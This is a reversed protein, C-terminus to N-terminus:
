FFFLLSSFFVQRDSSFMLCSITIACNFILVQNLTGSRAIRILKLHMFVIYSVSTIFIVNNELAGLTVINLFFFLYLNLWLFQTTFNRLALKIWVPYSSKAFSWLNGEDETVVIDYELKCHIRHLSPTNCYYVRSPIGTRLLTCM